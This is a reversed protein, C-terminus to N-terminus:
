RWAGESLFHQTQAPGISARKTSVVTRARLPREQAGRRVTPGTSRISTSGTM